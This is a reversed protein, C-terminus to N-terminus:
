IELHPVWFYMKFGGGSLESPCGPKPIVVLCSEPRLELSVEESLWYVLNPGLVLMRMSVQIEEM